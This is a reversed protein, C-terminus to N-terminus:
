QVVNYGVRAFGRKTDCRLYVRAYIFARTCKYGALTCKKRENRGKGIPWAGDM